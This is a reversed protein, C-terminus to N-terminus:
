LKRALEQDWNTPNTSRTLSTRKSLDVDDYGEQRDQFRFVRFSGTPKVEVEITGSDYTMPVVSGPRKNVYERFIACGIADPIDHQALPDSSVIVYKPDLVQLREWQTGNKSGHHAAALVDCAGELMGERDFAGWNEMQADGAMVMAFKGWVLRVMISMHNTEVKHAIPRVLSNPPGLIELYPVQERETTSNGDEELLDDTYLRNYGSVFKVPIGDEEIRNVLARYGNAGWGTHHWFPSLSVSRAGFEEILGSAGSYHDSHPHTLILEDIPEGTQLGLDHLLAKVKAPRVADVVVIRGEPTRVVQTDAQGVNLVFISLESRPAPPM